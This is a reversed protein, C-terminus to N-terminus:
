VGGVADLCADGFKQGEGFAFARGGAFDGVGHGERGSEHLFVVNGGSVCALRVGLRALGLGDLKRLRARPGVARPQRCPFRRQHVFHHRQSAGLAVVRLRHRDAGGGARHLVVSAPLGPGSAGDRKIALRAVDGVGDGQEVFPTRGDGGHGAELPAARQPTVTRGIGLAKDAAHTLGAAVTRFCWVRGCQRHPRGGDDLCLLRGGSRPEVRLAHPQVGSTGVGAAPVGRALRTGLATGVPGVRAHAATSADGAAGAATASKRSAGGGGGSRVRARTGGLM